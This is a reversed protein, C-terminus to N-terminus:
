PFLAHTSLLMKLPSGQPAFRVPCSSCLWLFLVRWLETVCMLERLPTTARRVLWPIGEIGWSPRHCPASELKM